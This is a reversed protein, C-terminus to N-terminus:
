YISMEYFDFKAFDIVGLIRVFIPRYQINVEATAFLERDQILDRLATDNVILPEIKSNFGLDTEGGPEKNLPEIPTPANPDHFGPDDRYVSLIIDIDAHEIVGEALREMRERVHFLCASRPADDHYPSCERYAYLASEKAIFASSQKLHLLNGFEFGAIILFLLVPIVYVFEVLVVGAESADASNHEGVCSSPNSRIM